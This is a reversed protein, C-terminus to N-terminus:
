KVQVYGTLIVIQSAQVGHDAAVKGTVHVVAGAQIDEVKGMVIKTASDCRVEAQKRTRAYHTEDQKDLLTGRIHGAQTETVEVMIKAEEQAKLQAFEANSAAHTQMHMMRGAGGWAFILGLVALATLLFVWIPRSSRISVTTANV